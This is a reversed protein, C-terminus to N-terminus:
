PIENKAEKQESKFGVNQVIGAPKLELLAVHKDFVERAKEEADFFMSLQNGPVPFEPDRWYERM